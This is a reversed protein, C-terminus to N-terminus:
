RPSVLHHTIVHVVARAAAQQLLGDPAPSPTTRIQAVQRTAAAVGPLSALSATLYVSAPVTSPLSQSSQLWNTAAADSPSDGVQLITSPGILGCPCQM